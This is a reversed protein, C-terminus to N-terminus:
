IGGRYIQKISQRQINKSPNNVALITVNPINSRFREHRQIAFRIYVNAKVFEIGLVERMIKFIDSDRYQGVPHKGSSKIKSIVQDRFNNFLQNGDNQTLDLFKDPNIKITAELVCIEEKTHNKTKSDYCQDIAFQKAYETLPESNIGQIFFYVGDGLWIDHNISERFNDQSISVVHEPYTGHYGTIKPNAKYV